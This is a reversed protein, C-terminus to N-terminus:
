VLQIFWRSNQTLFQSHFLETSQQLYIAQRLYPKNKIPEELLPGVKQDM